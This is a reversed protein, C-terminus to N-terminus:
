LAGTINRGHRQRPAQGDKNAARAAEKPSPTPFPPAASGRRPRTPCRSIVVDHLVGIQGSAERIRTDQTWIEDIRNKRARASVCSWKRIRRRKEWRGNNTGRGFLGECIRVRLDGLGRREGGYEFVNSLLEFHVRARARDDRVVADADVRALSRAIDEEFM